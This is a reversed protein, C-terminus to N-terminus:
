RHDNTSKVQREFYYVQNDATHIYGTGAARSLYGEPDIDDGLAIGAAANSVENKPTFYRSQGFDPGPGRPGPDSNGPWHSTSQGGIKYTWTWTTLPGSRPTPGPNSRSQVKIKM